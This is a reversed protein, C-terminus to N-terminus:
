QTVNNEVVNTNEVITKENTDNEVSENIDKKKSVESEEIKIEEDEDDHDHDHNESIANYELSFLKKEESGDNKLLSIYGVTDNSDMYLVWDGVLDIFSSYTELEKIIKTEESGDKKVKYICVTYDENELDKYNLYYIYDGLVNMNYAETEIIVKDDTGDTKIRCIQKNENTYYIYDDVINVSYLRKGDAIKTSNTGNINRIYTVYDTATEETEGEPLANYIIYKDNIGLYGTGNDLVLEKKTGDLNMKYINADEGIYYVKGNVVYIEYCDNNFENDNIIKLDSGDTKIRYIKNDLEDEGELSETGIGIFYIYNGVVNLSLIDLNDMFLEKKNDGNKDVKFIGIKSSDENPALFYITNDLMASYGFNRINGITNGTGKNKNLILFVILSIIVLCAIIIEILPKLKNISFKNNSEKQKKNDIKDEKKVENEDSVDELIKGKCEECVKNEGDPIEKGCKICNM